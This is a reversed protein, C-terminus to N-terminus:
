KRSVDYTMVGETWLMKLEDILPRLFVDIEKCPSKPGPIILSLFVYADKMCMNPPLNYVTILVPWCSYPTASHGFPNFGNTCLGLRVNRPDLSFSPHVDNFHKWAESDAPHAVVEPNRSKIHWIMHEATKSSMYLRQLRPTLPLYRLIKYPINKKRGGNNTKPKFRPHGCAPCSTLDATKKYYLICNNECADIKEYGLGLNKMMKKTRYFNPELKEGEPLFSKMISMLRDYCAESMNFESKCNLLQSMASLRSHSTCGQYLPEDADQLIKFFKSAEENPPEEIEQTMGFDFNPGVNEDFQGGFADMVMTRYPCPIPIVSEQRESFSNSTEGVFESVMPEGHATWRDYYQTFGKSYLHYTVDDRSHFRKNKCARCPCRIKDESVFDTQSFAFDLFENVGEIFENTICGGRRRNWM